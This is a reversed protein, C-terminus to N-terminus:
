AKDHDTIIKQKCKYKNISHQITFNSLFRGSIGSILINCHLSGDKKLLSSLSYNGISKLLSQVLNDNFPQAFLSKSYNYAVGIFM